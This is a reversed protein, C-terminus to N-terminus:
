PQRTDLSGRRADLRFQIGLQTATARKVRIEITTPQGAIIVPTRQSASPRLLEGAHLKQWGKLEFDFVNERAECEISSMNTCSVDALTVGSWTLDNGSWTSVVSGSFDHKESEFSGSITVSTPDRPAGSPAIVASRLRIGEAPVPFSHGLFYRSAADNIFGYSAGAILSTDIPDQDSTITPANELADVSPLSDSEYEHGFLQISTPAFEVHWALNVSGDGLKWKLKSCDIDAVLVPLRSSYFARVVSAESNRLTRARVIVRGPVVSLVVHWPTWQASFVGVITWAPGANRALARTALADLHSEDSTDRIGRLQAVPGNAPYGVFLFIGRNEADVGLYRIEAVVTRVPTAHKKANGVDIWFPTFMSALKQAAVGSASLWIPDVSQVFRSPQLQSAFTHEPRLAPIVVAIALGGIMSRCRVSSLAARTM